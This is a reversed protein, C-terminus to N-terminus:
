QLPWSLQPGRSCRLRLPPSRGGPDFVLRSPRRLEDNEHRLEDNSRELAPRKHYSQEAPRPAHSEHEQRSIREELTERASRHTSM